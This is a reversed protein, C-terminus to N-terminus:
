HHAWAQTDTHLPNPTLPPERGGGEGDTQSGGEEGGRGPRRQLDVAAGPHLPRALPLSGPAPREQAVVGQLLGLSLPPCLQTARRGKRKRGGWLLGMSFAAPPSPLSLLLRLLLRGVDPPEEGQEEALCAAGTPLGSPLLLLGLEAAGLGAAPPPLLSPATRSPVRLLYVLRKCPHCLLYAPPPLPLSGPPREWACSPNM